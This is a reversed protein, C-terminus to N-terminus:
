LPVQVDGVRPGPEGLTRARDPEGRNREGPLAPWNLAIFARWAFNDFTPYPDVRTSPADAIRDPSVLLPVDWAAALGPLALLGALAAALRLRPTKGSMRVSQGRESRM